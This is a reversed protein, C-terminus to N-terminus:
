SVVRSRGHQEDAASRSNRCTHRNVQINEYKSSELQGLSPSALIRVGIQVPRVM